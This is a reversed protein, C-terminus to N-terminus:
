RGAAAQVLEMASDQTLVWGGQDVFALNMTVPAPIKPGSIAVDANARGPGSPQINSVEFSLPFDGNRYGKRLEHDLGRGQGPSIGGEVLGEKAKYSVGPNSLNTLVTTLDSITPLNAEPQPNPPPDLPLPAGLVVPRVQFTAPGGPAVSVVGAAAAGIAAVATVGAALLKVSM